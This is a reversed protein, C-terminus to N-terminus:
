NLDYDVVLSWRYSKSVLSVVKYQDFQKKNKNKIKIKIKKFKKELSVKAHPLIWKNKLSPPQQHTYNRDNL